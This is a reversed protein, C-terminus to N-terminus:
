RQVGVVGRRRDRTQDLHPDLGEEHGRRDVADHGLAQRSRQAGRALPARQDGRPHQLVAPEM